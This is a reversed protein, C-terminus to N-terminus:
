CFIRCAQLIHIKYTIKAWMTTSVVRCSYICKWGRLNGGLAFGLLIHPPLENWNAQATLPEITWKRHSNLHVLNYKFTYILM